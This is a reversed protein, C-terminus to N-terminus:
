VWSVSVNMAATISAASDIQTMAVLLLDLNDRYHKYGDIMIKSLDRKGVTQWLGDADQAVDDNYGSYVVLDISARWKQLSHLTTNMKFGKIVTGTAMLTSFEGWLQAKRITQAETTTTPTTTTGGLVPSSLPNHIVTTPAVIGLQTSISSLATPDGLIGQGLLVPDLTNTAHDLLDGAPTLGANYDLIAQDFAAQTVSTNSVTVGDAMLETQTYDGGALKIVKIYDITSNYTVFAM